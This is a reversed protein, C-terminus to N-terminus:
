SGGRQAFAERPLGRRIGPCLLFHAAFGPPPLEARRALERSMSNCNYGPGSVRSFAAFPLEQSYDGFARVLAAIRANEQELGSCPIPEEFSVPDRLDTPRNFALALKGDRPGAGLTCYPRGEADRGCFLDPRQLAWGPDTPTIRLFLHQFPFKRHARHSLYWLGPRSPPSEPLPVQPAELSFLRGLLLALAGCLALFCAAVPM